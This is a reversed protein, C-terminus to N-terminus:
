YEREAREDDGRAAPLVWVTASPRIYMQLYRSSHEMNERMKASYNHKV